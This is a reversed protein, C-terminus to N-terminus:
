CPAVHDKSTAHAVTITDIDYRQCHCKSPTGPFLDAERGKTLDNSRHLTCTDDNGATRWSFCISVDLNGDDNSDTCKLSINSAIPVQVNGGGGLTMLIDGCEDNEGKSDQNWVVGGVIEPNTESATVEYHYGKELAGVKCHGVLADGGDLAVYWGPDYRASNFHVTGVINRVTVMEGEKCKLRDSEISTIYVEKSRCVLTQTNGADEWNTQMCTEPRELAFDTGWETNDESTLTVSSDDESSVTDLSDIPTGSTDSPTARVVATNVMSEQISGQVAVLATGEPELDLIDDKVFNGLQANEVVINTLKTNGTNVLFFCYTLLSGSPGRVSEVGAVRCEEAGDHGQYVMNHITIEPKYGMVKVGSPDSAAVSHTDPIVIGSHFVPRARVTAENVLSRKLTRQLVVTNSEGPALKGLAFDDPNADLAPVALEIMDLYTTGTNRIKFCYTVTEEKVSTVEEESAGCELEGGNGLFVTNQIDIEPEFLIPVSTEFHQSPGDPPKIWGKNEMHMEVVEEANMQVKFKFMVTGGRKPIDLPSVLGSEDLPFLTNGAKDDPLTTFTKGGDTSIKMTGALYEGQRISPNHLTFSGEKIDSQGVNQVTLTYTLYDKLGVISKDVREKVRITSFPLVTTGLDLSTEEDDISVAPDQGWAAAIPVPKGNMGKETAWIVCGSMDHDNTDRIAYSEYQKLTQKEVQLGQNEYDIFIEADEAPTIWVASRETKGQCSNLTCGYGWGVVIQSTLQSVPVLSFGWDFANGQGDQGSGNSAKSDTVSLVIFNHGPASLFAGTHTPVVPSWVAQQPPVDVFSDPTAKAEALAFRVSISNEEDPNFILLRTNGYSDGVPALYEDSLTVTSSLTFWRMEYTSDGDGGNDGTLLHVQIPLTSSITQGTQVHVLISKGKGLTTSTGDPLQVVNGEASSMVAVAAFNFSSTETHFNTGVPVQYQRGWVDQDLVEIAGALVSGPYQAYAGRTLVIPFSAHVQDGADLKIGSQHWNAHNRPVPIQSKLILTDGAMLYDDQDTCDPIDPRCGNAANGDGWISTYTSKPHLIDSEYGDEWHDLWVVTYDTSISISVMGIMDGRVHYQGNESGDDMQRLVDFFVDTEPLPVFFTQLPMALSVDVAPEVTDDGQLRRSRSITQRREDAM